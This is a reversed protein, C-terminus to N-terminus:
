LGRQHLARVFNRKRSHVAKLRAVEAEFDRGARGFVGRHTVLLDAAREYGTVSTQAVAEEITPLYIALAEAPHTASRRDAAALRTQPDCRYRGIAGWAAEDEDELLLARVYVDGASWLSADDARRRLLSWAQERQEAWRGPDAALIAERLAQYTELSGESRFRAQRLGIIEETRGAEAYLEVLLEALRGSRHDWRDADPCGRELWEIAEATRGDNLLLRAIDVYRQPSSLDEAYCAVLADIDGTARILEERLMRVTWDSPKTANATELVAWYADLGEVGLLDGIDTISVELGDPATLRFEAFWEGLEAPDPPDIECAELYADWAAGASGIAAGCDDESRQAAQCVLCFARRLLPQVEAARDSVLAALTEVVADAREAYGSEEGYSIWDIELREVQEALRGLGVTESGAIARLLMRQYLAPDDSVHQWVLGVLEDHGLTAIFARVDVDAAGRTRTDGTTRKRDLLRLGVAVCHKCFNGEEGYPCSCEGDLGGNANYLRVQYTDTGRVTAVVGDPLDRLDRVAEVYGQGRSFSRGGALDELDIRTFWAM